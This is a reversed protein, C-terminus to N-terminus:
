YSKYRMVPIFEETTEARRRGMFYRYLLVGAYAVAIGTLIGFIRILMPTAFIRGVLTRPGGCVPCGDIHARYLGHSTPEEPPIDLREILRRPESTVSRPGPTVSRSGVAVRRRKQPRALEFTRYSVDHQTPNGYM